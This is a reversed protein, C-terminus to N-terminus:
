NSRLAVVTDMRAAISAPIIGAVIGVVICIGVALAVIDPSIFLAFGLISSFVLTLIFVLLLGILGGLICLFASELLFETLITSRKAGLAKKLGIQSTRERVTVFMINAVGFMGVILSLAAIAWGGKNVNSSIDSIFKSFSDIDNLSFNNEQSPKLKRLSRMAGELEDLLMEM